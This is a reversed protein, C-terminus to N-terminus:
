SSRRAGGLSRVTAASRQAAGFGFHVDTPIPLFNFTQGADANMISRVRRRVRRGLLRPLCVWRIALAALQAVIAPPLPIGRERLRSEHALEIEGPALVREIGPGPPSAKLMGLIEDMRQRFETDSVFLDTRVAALVHGVNQVTTLDELTNLHSAFAAGTLM